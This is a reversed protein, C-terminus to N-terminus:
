SPLGVVADLPAWATGGSQLGGGNVTINGKTANGIVLYTDADATQAFAIIVTMALISRMAYIM